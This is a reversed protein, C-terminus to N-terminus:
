IAWVRDLGAEKGKAEEAGGVPGMENRSGELIAPIAVTQVEAIIAKPCDGQKGRLIGSGFSPVEEVAEACHQSAVSSTVIV